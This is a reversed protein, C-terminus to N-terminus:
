PPAHQGAGAMACIAGAFSLVAAVSRWSGWKSTSRIRAMPRQKSVPWGATLLMMLEARQRRPQGGRRRCCARARWRSQRQARAAGPRWLSEGASEAGGRGGGGGVGGWGGLSRVVGGADDARGGAHEGGHRVDNRLRVAGHVRAIGSEHESPVRHTRAARIRWWWACLM